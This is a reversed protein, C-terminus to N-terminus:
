RQLRRELPTDRTPSSLALKSYYLTGIHVSNTLFTWSTYRHQTTRLGYVASCSTLFATQIWTLIRSYCNLTPPHTWSYNMTALPSPPATCSSTPPTRLHLSAYLKCTSVGPAAGNMRRRFRSTDVELGDCSVLVRSNRPRANVVNSAMYNLCIQLM